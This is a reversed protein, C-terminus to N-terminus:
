RHNMLTQLHRASVWAAVGVYTNSDTFFKFRIQEISDLSCCTSELPLFFTFAPSESRSVLNGEPTQKVLNIRIDTQSSNLIVRSEQVHCKM